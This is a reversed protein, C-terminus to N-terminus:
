VSVAEQRRTCCSEAMLEMRFAMRFFRAACCCKWISSVRKRTAGPLTHSPLTDHRTGWQRGDRRASGRRHKRSRAVRRTADRRRRRSDLWKRFACGRRERGEGSRQVGSSRRSTRSAAGAPSAVHEPQQHQRSSTDEVEAEAVRGDRRSPLPSHSHTSDSHSPVAAARFTMLTSQVQCQRNGIIHGFTIFHATSCQAGGELLAVSHFECYSIFSEEERRKEQAIVCTHAPPEALRCFAPFTGSASAEGNSKM